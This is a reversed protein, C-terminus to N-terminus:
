RPTHAADIFEEKRPRTVLVPCPAKRVTMEAISGLFWHALGTRGHTGIVILDTFREEARSIIEVNPSGLQVRREVTINSGPPSKIQELETEALQVLERLDSQVAVNGPIAKSRAPSNEDVVHLLKISAGFTQALDFAQRLAAMSYESFDIPVLIRNIRVSGDDPSMFPHEKKRVVLVSCGAERVVREVVSGIMFQGRDSRGTGLCILDTGHDRAYDIIGKAPASLILDRKMPSALAPMPEAIAALAKRAAERLETVYAAPPVVPAVGKPSVFVQEQLAHVVHLEAEAARAFAVAYALAHQSEASFDTAVVIRQYRAM